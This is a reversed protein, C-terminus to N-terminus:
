DKLTLGWGSPEPTTTPATERTAPVEVRRTPNTIPRPDQSTTHAKKAVRYRRRFVPLHRLVIAPTNSVFLLSYERPLNRLDSKDLLPEETIQTSTSRGGKGYSESTTRRTFKPLMGVISDHFGNDKVNGGTIFVSAASLLLKMREEGWVGKGQSYNQLLAIPLIGRSGIHTYLDPLANWRAVNAVEDLVLFMPVPLRGGHTNAENMAAETVAATLAATVPGASAEGEMSVLYLTDRGGSVFRDPSFEHRGKTPVVWQHVVPNGMFSIGSQAHSYEGARQKEPRGSHDALSMAADEFMPGQRHLLDVPELDNPRVVWRYVDRMTKGPTLAAALMMASLIETAAKEWIDSKRDEVAAFLFRTALKTAKEPMRELPANRIFSLPDWFMPHPNPGTYISQPDFIFCDGVATRYRLTDSVVDPKNSTALVAGPAEIIFPNAISSSKNQRPGTIVLGTDEPGFYLKWMRRGLFGLCPMAYNGGLAKVRKAVGRKTMHRTQWPSALYQCAKVIPRRKGFLYAGGFWWSAVAALLGLAIGAAVRNHAPTWQTDKWTTVDLPNGDISQGSLHNGIWLTIMGLVLLGLLPVGIIAIMSERTRITERKTLASM